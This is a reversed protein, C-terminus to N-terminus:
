IGDNKFLNNLTEDLFLPAKKEIYAQKKRETMGDIEWLNLYVHFGDNDPVILTAYPNESANINTPTGFMDVEAETDVFSFYYPYCSYIAMLISIIHKELQQFSYNAPIYNYSLDLLIGQYGDEEYFRVIFHWGGILHKCNIHTVDSFDDKKLEELNITISLDKKSDYCVLTEIKIDKIGSILEVYKEVVNNYSEEKYVCGASLFSSM